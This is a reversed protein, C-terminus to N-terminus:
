CPSLRGPSPTARRTPSGCACPAWWGPRACPRRPWRGRTSARSTSWRARRAALGRWLQGQGPGPQGPRDRRQGTRHRAPHHGPRKRRPDREPGPQGPRHGGAGPRRGDDAHQKLINLRGADDGALREPLDKAFDSSVKMDNVHQWMAKLAGTPYSPAAVPTPTPPALSRLWAYIHQLELDSIQEETFAPMSGKGARVRLLVQEFSLGTGALKPGIGGEASRRPLEHVTEAAVAAAGRGSRARQAPRRRRTPPCRRRRRRHRPTPTPPVPTATADAVTPAPTHTPAPTATPPEPTPTPPALSRLWAYIHQLELDSIKDETFAPMAGEGNRVRQLVEELSLGTGALKPGIGGEAAAGHCGCVTKAAVAAAGHGSRARRARRARADRDASCQTATPPPRTPDAADASDAHREVAPWSPWSRRDPGGCEVRCSADTSRAQREYHDERTDIPVEHARRCVGVPAVARAPTCRIGPTCPRGARSM